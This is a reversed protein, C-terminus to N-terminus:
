EATVIVKGKAHGDGFYRLAEPVQGLRYRRDIGTTIKGAQCLGVLPALHQVQGSPWCGCRKAGARGTV